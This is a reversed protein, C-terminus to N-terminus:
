HALSALYSETATWPTLEIGFQHAGAIKSVTETPQRGSLCGSKHLTHAQHFAEEYEFPPVNKCYSHLRESNYWSVWEMTNKTV